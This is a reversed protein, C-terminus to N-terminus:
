KVTALAVRRQQLVNNVGGKVATAAVQFFYGPLSNQVRDRNRCLGIRTRRVGALYALPDSLVIVLIADARPASRVGSAGVHRFNTSRLGSVTSHPWVQSNLPESRQFWAGAAPM